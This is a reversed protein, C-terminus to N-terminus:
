MGKPRFSWKHIIGKPRVFWHSSFWKSKDGSVYVYGMTEFGGEDGPKVVIDSDQV